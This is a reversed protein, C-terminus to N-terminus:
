RVTLSIPSLQREPDEDNGEIRAKISEILVKDGSNLSNLLRKQEDTFRYSNSALVTTMGGQGPVSMEFSTVIFRMDFYFNELTASVLQQARLTTRPIDGSSIGGVRAVPDPLKCDISRLRRM